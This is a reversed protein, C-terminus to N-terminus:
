MDINREREEERGEGRGLFLYIFDNLFEGPSEVRLVEKFVLTGLQTLIKKRWREYDEAIEKM